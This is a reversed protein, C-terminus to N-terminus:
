NLVEWSDTFEDKGESEEDEDNLPNSEFYKKTVKSKIDDKFNWVEVTLLYGNSIKELTKTVDEKDNRKTFSTIERGDESSKSITTKDGKPANLTSNVKM